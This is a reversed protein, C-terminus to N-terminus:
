THRQHTLPGQVRARACGRWQLATRGRHRPSGTPYSNVGPTVWVGPLLPPVGEDRRRPCSARAGLVCTFVYGAPAHPLGPEQSSAAKGGPPPHAFGAEGDGQKLAAGERPRPHPSVRSGWRRAQPSRGGAPPPTPFGPKGMGRSWVLPIFSNNKPPRRGGLGEWSRGILILTIVMPQISHRIM